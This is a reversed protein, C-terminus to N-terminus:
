ERTLIRALAFQKETAFVLKALLKGEAAQLVRIEDPRSRPADLEAFIRDYVGKLEGWARLPDEAFPEESSRLPQGSAEAVAPNLLRIQSRLSELRARDATTVHLAPNRMLELARSAIRNALELVDARASPALDLQQFGSDFVVGQEVLAKLKLLSGALDLDAGSSALGALVTGVRYAPVVATMAFVTQTRALQATLTPWSEEFDEKRFSIQQRVPKSPSRGAALRPLVDRLYFPDDQRQIYRAQFFRQETRFLEAKFQRVWFEEIAPSEGNKDRDAHCGSVLLLCAPLALAALVRSFM